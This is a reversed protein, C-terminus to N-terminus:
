MTDFLGTSLETGLQGPRTSDARGQDRYRTRESLSSTSGCNLARGNGSRLRRGHRDSKSWSRSRAAPSKEREGSGAALGLDGRGDPADRWVRPSKGFSRRGISVHIPYTFDDSNCCTKSFGNRGARYRQRCNHYWSIEASDNEQVIDDAEGLEITGTM